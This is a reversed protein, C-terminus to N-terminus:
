TLKDGDQGNGLETPMPAPLPEVAGHLEYIEYLRPKGRVIQVAVDVIYEKSFINTPQSLFKAKTRETLFKARVPKPSVQPIIAKDGTRAKTDNRAQYWRLLVGELISSKSKKEENIESSIKNGILSADATNINFTCNNFTAGHLDTTVILQSAHDKAVPQIIDRFNEKSTIDLPKDPKSGVLFHAFGSKLYSAFAFLSNSHELIPLAGSVYPALDAIISGQRIERVFLRVEPEQGHNASFRRFEDAMADFSRALDQMDIPRKYELHYILKSPDDKIEM